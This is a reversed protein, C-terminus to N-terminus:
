AAPHAIGAQRAREDGIPTCPDRYIPCTVGTGVRIRKTRQTMAGLLVWANGAHGQNDQRPLFHDSTWVADFGADEAGVALELLEPGTFQESTLVFGFRAAGSRCGGHAVVRLHVDARDSLEQGGAHALHEHVGALAILAAHEREVAAFHQRTEPGRGSGGDALSARRKRPSKEKVRSRSPDYSGSVRAPRDGERSGMGLPGM